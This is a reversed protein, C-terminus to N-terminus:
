NLTCVSIGTARRSKGSENILKGVKVKMGVEVNKPFNEDLDNKQFFWSENSKISKIFGYPNKVNKYWRSINGYMQTELQQPHNFYCNAGDACYGKNFFYCKMKKARNVTSQAQALMRKQKKGGNKMPRLLHELANRVKKKEKLFQDREQVDRTSTYKGSNENKNSMKRKKSNAQSACNIEEYSCPLLKQLRSIVGPLLDPLIVANSKFKIEDHVLELTIRAQELEHLTSVQLPSKKQESIKTQRLSGSHFFIKCQHFIIEDEMKIEIEEGQSTDTCGEVTLNKEQSKIQFKQSNMSILYMYGEIDRKLIFAKRSIGSKGDVIENPIVIDCEDSRGILIKFPALKDKLFALPRAKGNHFFIIGENKVSAPNEEYLKVLKDDVMLDIRKTEDEIDNCQTLELENTNPAQTLDM